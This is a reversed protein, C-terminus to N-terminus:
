CFRTGSASFTRKQPTSRPRHTPSVVKGGGTLWNHLCQPLHPEKSRSHCSGMHSHGLQTSQVSSEEAVHPSTRTSGTPQTRNLRCSRRKEGVRITTKMRNLRCTRRKEGVRITTKMRNLRCSRRKEGARITTKMRNLRCSRRKEGARITTKMMIILRSCSRLVAGSRTTKMM